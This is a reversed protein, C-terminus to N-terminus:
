ASGGPLAGTAAPLEVILRTGRGPESHVSTDGCVALFSLVIAGYVITLWRRPASRAGGVTLVAFAASAAVYSFVGVPM